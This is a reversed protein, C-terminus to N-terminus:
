NTVPVLWNAKTIYLFLNYKKITKRYIKVYRNKIFRQIKFEIWSAAAINPHTKIFWYYYYFVRFFVLSSWDCRNHKSTLTMCWFQKAKLGEQHFCQLQHCYFNFFFPMGKLSVHNSQLSDKLFFNNEDFYMKFRLFSVNMFKQPNPTRKCYSCGSICITGGTVKIFASPKSM